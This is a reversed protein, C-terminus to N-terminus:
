SKTTLQRKMLAIITRTLIVSRTIKTAPPTITRTKCNNSNMNNNSNSNNNNNDNNSNINDYTPVLTTIKITTRFADTTFQYSKSNTKIVMKDILQVRLGFNQKELLSMKVELESKCNSNEFNSIVHDM